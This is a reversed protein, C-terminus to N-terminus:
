ETKRLSCELVTCKYRQLIAIDTSNQTVTERLSTIENKLYDNSARLDKITEQYVEQVAKMANAEAQKKGYKMSVVSFLGGGTIFALLPELYTALFETM